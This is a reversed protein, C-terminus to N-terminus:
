CQSLSEQHIDPPNTQDETSYRQGLRVIRDEVSEAIVAAPAAATPPINLSNRRAGVSGVISVM